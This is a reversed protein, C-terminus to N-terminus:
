PPPPRAASHQSESICAPLLGQNLHSPSTSALDRGVLELCQARRPAGSGLLQRERRAACGGM